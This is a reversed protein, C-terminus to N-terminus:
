QEAEAWNRFVTLLSVLNLVGGAGQFFTDDRWCHYWDDDSQALELRAFPRTELYTDRLSIKIRWGPNDITNIHIGQQHEWDGDCLQAYFREIWRLLDSVDTM